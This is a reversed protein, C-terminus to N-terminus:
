LDPVLAAKAVEVAVDLEVRAVDFDGQAAQPAEGALAYGFLEIEIARDLARGLIRAVEIEMENGLPAIPHLHQQEEVDAARHIRVNACALLQERGRLGLEAM